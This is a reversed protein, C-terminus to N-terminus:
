VALVQAAAVDPGRCGASELAQPALAASVAMDGRALAHKIAIEWPTAVSVHVEGGEPTLDRM